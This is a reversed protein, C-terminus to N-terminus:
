EAATITELQKLRQKLTAAAKTTDEREIGTLM